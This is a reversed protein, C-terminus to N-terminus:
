LYDSADNWPDFDVEFAMAKRIAIAAGVLLAGGIWWNKKGMIWDM